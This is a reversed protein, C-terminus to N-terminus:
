ATRRRRVFGLAGAGFLFLPLAAPLPVEGAGSVNITILYDAVTTFQIFTSGVNDLMAAAVGLPITFDGGFFTNISQVGGSDIEYQFEAPAIGTGGAEPTLTVLISDIVAGAPLIADFLDSDFGLTTDLGSVRGAITNAGFDLNFVTTGNVIDGDVAEDYTLPAAHATAGSLFAAAIAAIKLKMTM